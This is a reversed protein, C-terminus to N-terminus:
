RRRGGDSLTQGDAARVCMGASSRLVSAPAPDPEPAWPQGCGRCPNGVAREKDRFWESRDETRAWPMGLCIQCLKRRERPPDFQAVVRNGCPATLKREKRRQDDRARRNRMAKQHRDRDVACSICFKSSLRRSTMPNACGETACVRRETM